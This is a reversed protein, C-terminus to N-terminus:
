SVPVRLVADSGPEGRSANDTVLWLQGDPGAEVDRLRGLEQVLYPEPEGVQGDQLPVRWLRQGRLAALYVADGTVAAGSPSAEDPTWTLLPDTYEPEGGGGEVEPWGYNRGPEIRNLEDFRDAGFESAYMRGEADWGLGQVNRHGLTWVPSRPFPNDAPVEGDPAVRLIKGNLDGPDQAAPRDQADGTTIYLMGDPGFALRGGNHTSAASIGDLVVEPEGLRDGELRMRVVRNEQASTLYAYVWPEAEFDPAVALGLLGGEGRPETGPVRGGEGPAPVDTVEGGPGVRLVRAEDRLSVLASGDPLFTVDWPVSLGGVVQEPTGPVGTITQAEEAPTASGAGTAGDESAPNEGAAPEEPPSQDEAPSQTATAAPPATVPESRSPGQQCGALLLAGTVLM